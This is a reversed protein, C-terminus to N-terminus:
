AKVKFANTLSVTTTDLLLCEYKTVSSMIYEIPKCLGYNNLSSMELFNVLCHYAVLYSLLVFFRSTDHINNSLM